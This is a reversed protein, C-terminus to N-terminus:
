YVKWLDARYIAAKGPAASESHPKPVAAWTTIAVFAAVVLVAAFIVTTKTPKPTMDKGIPSMMQRANYVLLPSCVTIQTM